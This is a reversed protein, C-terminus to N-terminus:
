YNVAAWKSNVNTLRFGISTNGEWPPDVYDLETSVPGYILSHYLLPQM